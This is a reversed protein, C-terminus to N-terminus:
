GAPAAAEERFFEPYANKVARTAAEIAETRARSEGLGYFPETEYAARLHARADHPLLTSVESPYLLRRIM